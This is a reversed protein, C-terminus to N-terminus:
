PAAVHLNFSRRLAALERNIEAPKAARKTIKGDDDREESQRDAIFRRIEPTGIATMKRREGFFPLLHMMTKQSLAFLGDSRRNSLNRELARRRIVSVVKPCPM